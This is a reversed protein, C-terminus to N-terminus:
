QRRHGQRQAFGRSRSSRPRLAKSILFTYDTDLYGETFLVMRAREPTATTPAVVFEFKKAGLGAFMGSWESDIIEYGPRGLREAIEAALDINFGETSGDPLAMAHPAFGVDAAVKLPTPQILSLAVILGFM